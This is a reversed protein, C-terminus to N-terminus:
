PSMPHNPDLALVHESTLDFQQYRERGILERMEADAQEPHPQAQSIAREFLFNVGDRLVYGVAHGYLETSTTSVPHKFMQYRGVFSAGGKSGVVVGAQGQGTKLVNTVRLSDGWREHGAYRSRNAIQTLDEAERCMFRPIDDGQCAKSMVWAGVLLGRRVAIMQANLELKDYMIESQDSVAAVVAEVANTLVDQVTGRFQEFQKARDELSKINVVALAGSHLRKNIANIQGRKLPRCRGSKYKM